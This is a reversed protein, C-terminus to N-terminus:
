DPRDALLSECAVRLRALPDGITARVIAADLKYYHHGILDRMRAIDSWPADPRQGRLDAPLAKVAEGITFVHFQIAALALGPVEDDDTHRQAAADARDIADIALLIDGLRHRSSRSM